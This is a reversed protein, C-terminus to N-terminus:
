EWKTAYTFGVAMFAVGVILNMQDLQDMVPIRFKDDQGVFYFTIIWILGLLFCGLMGVVVGRGRGLPTKKHAAVILGLFALGFGIVYNWRRIDSMWPFPTNPEDIGPAKVHNAADMAVQTYVTIWAIGALVLLLAIACRVLSTEYGSVTITPKRAAPKSV